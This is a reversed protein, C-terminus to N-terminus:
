IQLEHRCVDRYRAGNLHNCYSNCCDFHWFWKVNAFTGEDIRRPNSRILVVVTGMALGNLVNMTFSKPTQKIVEKSM